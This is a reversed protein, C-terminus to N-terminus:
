LSSRARASAAVCLESKSKQATSLACVRLQLAYAFGYGRGCGYRFFAIFDPPPSRRYIKESIQMTSHCISAAPTHLPARLGSRFRPHCTSADCGSERKWDKKKKFIYHNTTWNTDCIGACGNAVIAAPSHKDLWKGEVPHMPDSSRHRMVRQYCSKAHCTVSCYRSPWQRHRPCPVRGKEQSGHGEGERRAHHQASTRATHYEQWMVPRRCFQEYIYIYTNM